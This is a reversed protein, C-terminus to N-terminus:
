TNSPLVVPYMLPERPSTHHHKKSRDLASLLATSWTRGTRPAAIDDLGMSGYRMSPHHAGPTNFKQKSGYSAFAAPYQFLTAIVLLCLPLYSESLNISSLLLGGHLGTCRSGLDACVLSHRGRVLLRSIRELFLFSARRAPSVSPWILCTRDPVCAVQGLRPSTDATRTPSPVRPLRARARIRTLGRGQNPGLSFM